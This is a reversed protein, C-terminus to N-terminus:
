EDLHVQWEDICQSAKFNGHLVDTAACQEHFALFAINDLGTLRALHTAFAHGNVLAVVVVSVQVDFVVDDEGVLEVGLLNRLQFFRQRLTKLRVFVVFTLDGFNYRLFHVFGLEFVLVLSLVVRIPHFFVLDIVVIM